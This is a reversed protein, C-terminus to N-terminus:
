GYELQKLIQLTEPTPNNDQNLFWEEFMWSEIFEKTEKDWVKTM